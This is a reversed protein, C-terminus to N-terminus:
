AITKNTLQESIVASMRAARAVILVRDEATPQDCAFTLWSSRGDCGVPWGALWGNIPRDATHTRQTVEM